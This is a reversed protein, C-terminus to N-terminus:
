SYEKFKVSLDIKTVEGLFSVDKYKKSLSTIVFEGLVNSENFAGNGIILDFIDGNNMYEDFKKLEEKPNIGFSGSLTINLSVEDANKYMFELKPKQNIIKHEAYEVSSSHEADTFTMTKFPNVTFVIEGFGGLNGINKITDILSM